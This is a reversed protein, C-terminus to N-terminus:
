REVSIPRADINLPFVITLPGSSILTHFPTLHFDNLLFKFDVQSPNQVFRRPLFYVSSLGSLRICRIYLSTDEHIFPLQFGM